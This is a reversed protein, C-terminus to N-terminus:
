TLAIAATKSIYKTNDNVVNSTLFVLAVCNTKLSGNATDFDAPADLVLSYTFTTANTQAIAGNAVSVGKVHDYIVVRILSLDFISGTPKVISGATTIKKTSTNYASSTVTPYVDMNSKCVQLALQQFSKNTLMQKNAKFVSNRETMKPAPPFLATYGITFLVSAFQSLKKFVLRISMQGATRPNSPKAYMRLYNIGKWKSGVFEGLKGTIAGKFFSLKAM